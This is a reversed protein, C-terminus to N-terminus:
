LYIKTLEDKLRTTNWTVLAAQMKCLPKTLHYFWAQHVPGKVSALISWSLLARSLLYVFLVSSLVNTRKLFFIVSFASSLVDSRKLSSLVSLILERWLLPFLCAFLSCVICFVPCWKEQSFLSCVLFFVPYWNCYRSLLSFPCSLLCSMLKGSLFSFLCSLLCFMLKGSLFSFLCSLLCSMLEGSLLSFLCSVLCSMLERLSSLVSLFSSM